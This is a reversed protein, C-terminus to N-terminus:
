GKLNMICTLACVMWFTAKDISGCFYFVFALVIGAITGCVCWADDNLILRLISKSYFKLNKM